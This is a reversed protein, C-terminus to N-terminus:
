RMLLFLFWLLFNVDIETLILNTTETRIQDRIYSVYNLSATMDSISASVLHVSM